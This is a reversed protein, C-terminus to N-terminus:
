KGYSVTRGLPSQVKSAWQLSKRRAMLLRHRVAENPQDEIEGTLPFFLEQSQKPPCTQQVLKAGKSLYYPTTPSLPSDLGDYDDARSPEATPTTPLNFKPIEFTERRSAPTDFTLFEKTPSMDALPAKSPTEAPILSGNLNALARPEMSKRRRSGGRPVISTDVAYDAENLWKDERECDLVWGVGVCHVAGKAERVKELTRKGGDKYVVHTIGIKSAPTGMEPSATQQPSDTLGAVPAAQPNWHWQKVCRAGMQTLLDVFIGSADAGESTHVDVHVVAGKLANLCGTKRISRGPTNLASKPGAAPTEPTDPAELEGPLMSMSLNADQLIPSLISDRSISLRDPMSIDALPGAISRSRKRLVKLPTDDGAPRLPVKSVTHIERREFVRAPTCTLTRDQSKQEDVFANTEEPAANEDGYIESTQSDQSAQFDHIEQSSPGELEDTSGEDGILSDDDVERIAMEEDFFSVKAPSGIDTAAPSQTNAKTFVPGAPSFIGRKHGRQAANQKEPSSALWSGMQLALPTMAISNRKEARSFARQSQTSPTNDRTAIHSGVAGFDKTSIGFTKLPSAALSKQPSSLEDESELDDVKGSIMSSRLVFSPKAFISAAQGSTQTNLLDTRTREVQHSGVTAQVDITEQDQEPSMFSDNDLDMSSPDEEHQFHTLEEMPSHAVEEPELPVDAVEIQSSEHLEEGRQQKTPSTFPSNAQSRHEKSFDHVKFQHSSSKTARLPSRAASVSGLEPLKFTSVQKSATDADVTPVTFTPKSSSFMTSTKMASGGPRRAPSQLLSSKMPTKLWQLSPKVGLDSINLRRPPEKLPSRSASPPANLQPPAAGSGFNVKRPSQKLADKFPSPPPKRPSAALRTPSADKKASEPEVAANLELRSVVIDENRNVSMPIKSPSTTLPKLPTKQPALEDESGVSPTKAVQTIKKPSLPLPNQKSADEELQQDNKQAKTGRTSTKTAAPKRVPKARLGTAKPLPKEQLNAVLPQNEKDQESQDDFKVKKKPVAAAARTRTTIPKTAAAAARGRTAKVPPGPAVDEAITESAITAEPEVAKKPRGRPKPPQEHKSVAAASTSNSQSRTSKAPATSSAATVKTATAPTNRTVKPKGRTKPAEVVPEKTAAAQEPEETMEEDENVQPLDASPKMAETKNNKKKASARASATTIRTEAKADVDKKARARTVRKPPSTPMDPTQKRKPPM